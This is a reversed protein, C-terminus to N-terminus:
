DDEATEVSPDLLRAAQVQAFSRDAGELIASQGTMAEWRRVILDCYLPDLEIMRARRDMEECAMLTSGSGGFPDLVIDGRDTVDILADVLMQVPKPTPHNKLMDRADTGATGAGAYRWVNTRDRGNKGLEINNKHKGPKTLAVVFESQSRYLSGMGGQSKMWTILNIHEYGLQKGMQILISIHKWDMFCFLLGGDVLRKHMEQFTSAIMAEFVPESMDGGGEVFDRHRTSVVKSIAVAYPPDTLALQVRDEGLLRDYSTALKADGCLLRHQGLIWVDDRRSVPVQEVDLEPVPKESRPEDLLLQDLEKSSFGTTLLPFDIDDLETLVIKLEDVDYPRAQGLRNLALRLATKEAEDLHSLRVCPLSGLGLLKAAEVVAVGDIVQNKEDVLIPTSVGFQRISNAVDEMDQPRLKRVQRKPVRLDTLQVEVHALAPRLDNRMRPAWEQREATAKLSERRTRSKANLSHTLPDASLPKEGIRVSM